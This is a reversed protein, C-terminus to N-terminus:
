LLIMSYIIFPMIKCCYKYAEIPFLRFNHENYGNVIQPRFENTFNLFCFYFNWKIEFCFNWFWIGRRWSRIGIRRTDFICYFAIFHFKRSLLVSFFFNNWVNWSGKSKGALITQTWFDASYTFFSYLVTCGHCYCEVYEIGSCFYM